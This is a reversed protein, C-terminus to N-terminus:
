GLQKLRLVDRESRCREGLYASSCFAEIEEENYSYNKYRDWFGDYCFDNKECVKLLAKNVVGFDAMTSYYSMQVQAGLLYNCIYDFFVKDEKVIPSKSTCFVKFEEIRPIMIELQEAKAVYNRYIESVCIAQEKSAIERCLGLEFNLIELDHKATRNYSRAGNYETFLEMSWGDVCSGSNSLLPNEGMSQLTDYQGCIKVIDAGRVGGQFLAHGLGHYCGVLSEGIQTSCIDVMSDLGNSKLLALLVGHGYGWSCINYDGKLAEEGYYKVASVGLGHALDHCPSNTKNNNREFGALVLQSNAIGNEKVFTDLLAKYCSENGKGCKDISSEIFGDVSFAIKEGNVNKKNKEVVIVFFSTLLIITLSIIALSKNRIM